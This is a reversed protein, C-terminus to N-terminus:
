IYWIHLLAGSGVYMLFSFTMSLCARSHHERPIYPPLYTPLYTSRKQDPWTEEDSQDFTEITKSWHLLLQYHILFYLKIQILWCLILLKVCISWIYASAPTLSFQVSLLVASCYCVPSQYLSALRTFRKTFLPPFFVIKRRTVLHSSFM